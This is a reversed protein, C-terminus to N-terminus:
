VSSQTRASVQATTASVRTTVKLRKWCEELGYILARVSPNADHAKSKNRNAQRLCIVHRGSATQCGVNYALQFSKEDKRTRRVPGCFLLVPSLNWRLAFVCRQAAPFFWPSFKGFITERTGIPSTSMTIELTLSVSMQVHGIRSKSLNNM